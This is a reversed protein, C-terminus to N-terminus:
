RREIRRLKAQLNESTTSTPKTGISNALDKRVCGCWLDRTAIVTPTLALTLISVIVGFVFVFVTLCITGIVCAPAISLIILMSGAKKGASKVVGWLGSKNRGNTMPREKGIDATQNKRKKHLIWEKREAAPSAPKGASGVSVKDAAQLMARKSKAWVSLTMADKPTKLKSNTKM